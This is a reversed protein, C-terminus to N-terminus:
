NKSFDAAARMLAHVNADPTERDMNICCLGVRDRRGCERLLRLGTHYIEEASSRMMTVPDMRLNLFATPFAASCCAVDSGWGVDFFSADLSQYPEAYKHLNNGCHHVGFPRLRAALQQEFKFMRRKYLEVSIMHNSCNSTLCISPDLDVISRNTAISSTGTRERVLESVRAQTEAIVGFLHDSLESDEVLDMFFQQGRVELATNLLGAPNLDGVVYGFQRELDDMQAFLESTPWTARIEPVRLALISDRGLSSPVPWAAQDNCFRIQVGLLAPVVFGGAIQRSGIIPRPEPRAQGFGFREYLVRRMTVDNRIRTEPDLYFPKEFSIGYHHFWWNPGFIFNVPITGCIM